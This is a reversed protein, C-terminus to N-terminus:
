SYKRLSWFLFPDTSLLRDWINCLFIIALTCRMKSVCEVSIVHFANYINLANLMIIVSHRLSLPHYALFRKTFHSMSIPPIVVQKM